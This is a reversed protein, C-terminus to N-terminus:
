SNENDLRRLYMEVQKEAMGILDSPQISDININDFMDDEAVLNLLNNGMGNMINETAIMSLERIREHAEQRSGGSKVHEMIVNEMMMFPIDNNIHENIIGENVRLGDIIEICQSIIHDTLIFAEPIMIRRNASDDLSRELWQTCSNMKATMTLSIIHRSLSCVNECKIPNKKYAMASSGVQGDGFPECLEHMGQLLRIDNCMKHTSQAINSLADMVIADIKRTYTQGSILMYADKDDMLREALIENLRLIKGEDGNFLEVFSAQTGTAGNCGLMKLKINDIIDYDMIFDQLWMCARKGVTTPQAPQLHTYAMTVTGKHKDAFESLKRNLVRMKFKIMGLARNMLLIDTNDTIYCSTAGLHIIPAATPCKSCVEKLHAMVDHRTEKEFEQVMDYDIKYVLIHMGLERLQEDTIDLGLEKEAKALNYWLYRWAGYRTDDSFIERMSDSGYRDTLPSAYNDRRKTNEVM